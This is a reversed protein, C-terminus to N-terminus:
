LYFNLTDPSFDSEAIAPIDVTDSFCVSRVQLCNVALNFNEIVVTAVTTKFHQQLAHDTCGCTLSEIVYLKPDNAQRIASLTNYFIIIM